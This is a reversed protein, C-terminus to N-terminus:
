RLGRHRSVVSSPACHQNNSTRGPPPAQLSEHSTKPDAPCNSDLYSLQKGFSIYVFTKHQHLPLNVTQMFCRGAQVSLSGLTYEVAPCTRRSLFVGSPGCNIKSCHPRKLNGTFMEVNCCRTPLSKLLKCFFVSVLFFSFLEEM